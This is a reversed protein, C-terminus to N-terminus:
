AGSGQTSVTSGGSSRNAVWDDFEQDLEIFEDSTPTFPWDVVLENRSGVGAEDSTFRYVGPCVPVHDAGHINVVRTGKKRDTAMRMFAVEDYLKELAAESMEDTIGGPRKAARRARDRIWEWSM